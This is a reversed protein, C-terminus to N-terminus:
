AEVVTAVRRQRKQVEIQQRVLDAIQEPNRMGNLVIHPDTRDSSLILIRGYGVLRQGLPEEVQLDTVRYLELFETKVSLVGKKLVLRQDTIRVKTGLSAFWFFIAAFGLTVVTLAWRGISCLAAPKGEFLVKEAAETTM